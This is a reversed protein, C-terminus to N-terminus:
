ATLHLSRQGIKVVLQLEGGLARVVSRLTSLKHDSRNEMRSIEAQTKSLVKAMQAQTKGTFERLERLDMKLVEDRVWKDAKALQEPTVKKDRIESWKKTAM